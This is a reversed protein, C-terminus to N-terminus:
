ESEGYNEEPEPTRWLPWDAPVWDPQKYSEVRDISGYYPKIDLVPTGEAADIEDIVIYGGDPSVELIEATTICVPNPRVPSRTAFLGATTGPAYPLEIKMDIQNRYEVYKHAWWVIVVHGFGELGDLGPGFKSDLEVKATGNLKTIKGIMQLALDVTNEMDDEM